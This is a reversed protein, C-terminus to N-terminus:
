QVTISALYGHVPNLKLNPLFDKQHIQARCARSWHLLTQLLGLHFSLAGGSCRRPPFCVYRASLHSGLKKKAKKVLYNCIETMQERMWRIDEPIDPLWELLRPLSLLCGNTPGCSPWSAFFARRSEQGLNNMTKLELVCVDKKLSSIGAATVHCM